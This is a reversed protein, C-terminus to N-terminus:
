HIDKSGGFVNSLPLNVMYGLKDLIMNTTKICNNVATEKVRLLTQFQTILYNIM